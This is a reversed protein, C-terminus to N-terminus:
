KSEVHLKPSSVHSSFYVAMVLKCATAVRKECNKEVGKVLQQLYRNSIM